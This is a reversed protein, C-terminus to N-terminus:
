LKSALVVTRKIEAVKGQPNFIEGVIIYRGIPLRRGADDSGDWVIGTDTGLLQNTALTRLKRGELDLIAINAVSNQQVDTYNLTVFDNYGDGDPSFVEPSITFGNDTANIAKFQSNKYTPTGYGVAEAASHWNNKDNTPLNPNGRELSVGATVSVLPNQWADEYNLRDLLTGNDSYVFVSAAKADLTPFGSGVQLINSPRECRYQQQLLAANATIVAYEDPFLLFGKSIVVPNDGVPDTLLGVRLTYGKLDLVKKSRNYVEIYRADSFNTNAAYLIENIILDNAAAAEPVIFTASNAQTDIINGICDRVNTNLTVTYKISPRLPQTLRLIITTHLLDEFASTAIVAGNDIQYDSIQINSSMAENFFLYISDQGAPYARILQPSRTDTDTTNVSNIKGPTGGAGATTVAWNSVGECPKNASVRELAYGKDFKTGYWSKEYGVADIIGNTGTLRIDDGDNSLSPFSPLHFNTGYATFDGTGTGTIILYTNPLMLYNPLAPGSSGSLLLMGSLQIAKDSRNYLEVYEQNVGLGLDPTPDAYIENIIIDYQAAAQVLVYTFNKTESVSANGALDTVGASTLTYTIGSQLSNTFTLHVLASNTADITATAPAGIVGSVSYNTTVNATTANLPESYLADVQTGNVAAASQLVPKINDVFLPSVTVDDFFYKTAATSTYGCLLGFYSGSSYTNDTVSGQIAYNTGGSYDAYVNWVGQANRTVKLRAQTPNLPLPSMASLLKTATAGTKKYLRLTDTGTEGMQLYYGNLPATLDANDSQLFIRTYNMGSPGQTGLEQRFYVQWSCSDQIRMPAVLYATGAGTANLKAEGGVVTFNAVTGQWQSLGGSFDDTFTTQANLAVSTIFTFFSLSLLRFM